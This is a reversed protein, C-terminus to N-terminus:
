FVEIESILTDDNDTGLGSDTALFVDEIVFRIRTTDIPSDFTIAQFGGWSWELQYVTDSSDTVVGIRAVANNKWYLDESKFYGNLIYFGSVRQVEAAKLEIWEGIGSGPVGECWATAWNGDIAHNAIYTIQSNSGMPARTSSAYIEDFVPVRFYDPEATAPLEPPAVSTDFTDEEIDIEETEEVVEDVEYVEDVEDEDDFMIEGSYIEESESLGFPDFPLIQLGMFKPAIVLLFAAVCAVAIILTLHIAKKDQGQTQVPRPASEIRSNASYEPANYEGAPYGPATNGPLVGDKEGNINEFDAGCFPCFKSNDEIQRGCVICFM